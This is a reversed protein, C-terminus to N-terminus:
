ATASRANGSDSSASSACSGLLYALRRLTHEAREMERSLRAMEKPLPPAGLLAIMESASRVVVGLLQELREGAPSLIWQPKPPAILPYLRALVSSPNLLLERRKAESPDKHWLSVV